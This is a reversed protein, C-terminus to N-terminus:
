SIRTIIMGDFEGPVPPSTDTIDGVDFFPGCEATQSQGLISEAGDGLARPWLEKIQTSMRKRAYPAELVVEVPEGSSLVPRLQFTVSLTNGTLAVGKVVNPYVLDALDLTVYATGM